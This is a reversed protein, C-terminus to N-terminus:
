FSELFFHLKITDECFFREETKDQKTRSGSQIWRVVSSYPLTRKGYFSGPLRYTINLKQFAPNDTCSSLFLTSKEKPVHNFGKEPNIKTLWHTAPLSLSIISLHHRYSIDQSKILELFFIARCRTDTMLKKIGNLRYNVKM